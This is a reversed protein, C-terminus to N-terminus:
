GKSPFLNYYEKLKKSILESNGKYKKKIAKDNKVLEQLDKKTEFSITDGNRTIM